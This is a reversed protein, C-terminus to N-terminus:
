LSLYGSLIGTLYTWCKEWAHMSPQQNQWWHKWTITSFAPLVSTGSISLFFYTTM